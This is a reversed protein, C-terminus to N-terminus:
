KEFWGQSMFSGDGHMLHLHPGNSCSTTGDLIWGLDQGRVVPVWEGTTSLLILEPDLEMHVYHFKEGEDTVLTIVGANCDGGDWYRAMGNGIAKAVFPYGSYFDLGNHNSGYWMPVGWEFSVYADSSAPWLYGKSEYEQPPTLSRWKMSDMASDRLAIARDYVKGAGSPDRNWVFGKSSFEGVFVGRSQELSINVEDHIFYCAVESAIEPNWMSGTVGYRQANREFTEPMFQFMGLAGAYSACSNPRPLSEDELTCVNNGTEYEKLALNLYPDCAIGNARARKVGAEVYSWVTTNVEEPKGLPTAKALPPDYVGVEKALTLTFLPLLIVTVMLMLGECVRVISILMDSLPLEIAFRQILLSLKYIAWRSIGFFVVSVLLVKGWVLSTEGLGRMDLLFSILEGLMPFTKRLVLYVIYWPISFSVIDIILYLAESFISGRVKTPAIRKLFSSIVFWCILYLSVAIAVDRNSMSNWVQTLIPWIIPWLEEFKVM